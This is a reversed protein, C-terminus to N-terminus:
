KTEESAVEDIFASAQADTFDRRGDLATDALRFADLLAARLVSPATKRERVISWAARAYSLGLARRASLKAEHKKSEHKRLGLAFGAVSLLWFVVEFIDHPTM